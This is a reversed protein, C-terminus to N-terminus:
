ETHSPATQAAPYNVLVSILALRKQGLIALLIGCVTAKCNPANKLLYKM